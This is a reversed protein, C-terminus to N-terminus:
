AGASKIGSLYEAQDCGFDHYGRFQIGLTDFDADSSEVTPTQLGNLFSVLMPKLENGFLFWQTSSSGTFATDSLRNQVVPRYKRAHINENPVSEATAAGGTNVNSSVYLREAIFELEPPVVIITPRTNVGVRKQGDASASRLKRFATIGAQLGAGDVGLVSGPSGSIYNGLSNNTPFLSTNVMFTAWFVNNFKQAAGRGLRARIDDFAGLDDNVIQERTLGLMKGYTKARSTFSEQGLTGHKIEGAPGVEEYELNDLMRFHTHTYFNSVNKVTAIERWTSDEEMYGALILKNAVNGLIGPLSVTSFGSLRAHIPPFCYELVTRLNGTTIREGARCSYGNSHAVQLLLQQISFNNRMGARDVAELTQESYHKEIDPIGASMCIAAEIVKPDGSSNDSMTSRFTGSKTRTARILELEFMDPETKKEAAMKALSEIQEIYMPHEKMAALAIKNIQENRSEAKRVEAALEALTKKARDLPPDSPAGSQKDFLDQLTAKQDDTASDLDVGLKACFKEFDNMTKEGAASAAVNISNGEDAGNSVFGLGTLTSTPFIYLPGEIKRGNVTATKGRDLKRPKPLSAEISVDWVFGEAASGAVEERYATKASLVGTLRLEKGDNAVDSVHGVRQSTKHDLNAKVGRGPSMGQLDIIYDADLKLGSLTSRNVVGGSYAVGSFTPPGQKEGEGEGAKVTVSGPDAILRATNPASLKAKAKM